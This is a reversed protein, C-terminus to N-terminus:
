LQRISQHEQNNFFFFCFFSGIVIRSPSMVVFRAGRKAMKADSDRVQVDNPGMFMVGRNTGTSYNRSGSAVSCANCNCRPAHPAAVVGCVIPANANANASGHPAAKSLRRGARSALSAVRQM